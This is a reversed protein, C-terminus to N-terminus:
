PKDRDDPARLYMRAELGNQGEGVELILGRSPFSIRSVSLTLPLGPAGDAARLWYIDLPHTREIRVGVLDRTSAALGSWPDESM